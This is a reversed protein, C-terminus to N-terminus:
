LELVKANIEVARRPDDDVFSCARDPQAFLDPYSGHRDKMSIQGDLDFGGEINRLGGSECPSVVTTGFTPM